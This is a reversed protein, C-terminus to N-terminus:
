NGAPVPEYSIVPVASATESRKRWLAIAGAILVAWPLLSYPAWQDRFEDM